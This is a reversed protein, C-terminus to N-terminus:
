LIKAGCEPCFNSNNAVFKGCSSCVVSNKSIALDKKLENIENKYEKILECKEQVDGTFQVDNEFQSYVYKGINLCVDDIKHELEKINFNIKSQDVIDSSKSIASRTISEAENAFVSFGNKINNVLKNIDAM